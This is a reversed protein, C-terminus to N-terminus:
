PARKLELSYTCYISWIEGTFDNGAIKGSLRAGGGPESASAVVDGASSVTGTVGAQSTPNFTYSVSGDQVILKRKFPGRLCHSYNLDSSNETLTQMGTYVGNFQSTQAGAEGSGLAFVGVFAACILVTRVVQKATM